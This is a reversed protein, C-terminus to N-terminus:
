ANITYKAVSTKFYNILIEDGLKIDQLTYLYHYMPTNLSNLLNSNPTLSHNLFGGLPTRILIDTYIHSIGLNTYKPIDCTAFVGLGHIDSKKITLCEPLPKYNNYNNIM